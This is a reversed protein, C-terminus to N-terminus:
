GGWMMQITYLALGGLIVLAVREAMERGHSNMAGGSELKRVRDFLNDDIKSRRALEREFSQTLVGMRQDLSQWREELRAVVELRENTRDLRAGQEQQSKVLSTLQTEIKALREDANM